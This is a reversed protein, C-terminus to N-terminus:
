SVARDSHKSSRRFAIMTTAPALHRGSIGHVSMWTLAAIIKSGGIADLIPLTEDTLLDRDKRCNRLRWRGQHLYAAGHRNEALDICGAWRLWHAGITELDLRHERM